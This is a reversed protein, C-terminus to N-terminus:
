IEIYNIDIYKKFQEIIYNNKIPLYIPLKVTTNYDLYKSYKKHTDCIIKIITNIDNNFVGGGVFTLVINLKYKIAILYISEYAVKLFLKQFKISKKSKNRIICTSTFLQSILPGNNNFIIKNGFNKNRDICAKTNYLFGIKIKKYIKKLKKLDDINLKKEELKGNVDNINVDELLSINKKYHKSLINIEGFIAGGTASPGQTTDSMLFSLYKGDFPNDTTSSVELCNFNSAVQFITNNSKSQLSSTDFLEENDFNKRSILTIKIKDNSKHNNSFNELIDNELEELSLLKFNGMNEKVFEPMNDINFNWTKEKFYFLNEFWKDREIFQNM